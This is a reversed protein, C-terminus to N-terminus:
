LNNILNDATQMSQRHDDNEITALKERATDAVWEKQYASATKFIEIKRKMEKIEEKQVNLITAKLQELDASSMKPALELIRALQAESLAKTAKALSLVEDLTAM